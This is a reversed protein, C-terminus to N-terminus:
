LKKLALVRVILLVISCPNEVPPAHGMLPGHCVRRTPWQIKSFFTLKHINLFSAIKVM